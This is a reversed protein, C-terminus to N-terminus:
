NQHNEISKTNEDIFENLKKIVQTKEKKSLESLCKLNNVDCNELLEKLVLKIYKQEQVPDNAATIIFLIKANKVDVNLLEIFKNMINENDFGTSTLIIKKM